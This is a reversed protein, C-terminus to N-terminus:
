STRAGAISRSSLSRYIGADSFVATDLAVTNYETKSKSKSGGIGVPVNLSWIGKDTDSM